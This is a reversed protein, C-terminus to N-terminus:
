MLVLFTFSTVVWETRAKSGPHEALSFGPETLKALLEQPRGSLVVYQGIRDAEDEPLGKEDVMEDRVDEWPAKDLKDIASCIARRTCIGASSQM